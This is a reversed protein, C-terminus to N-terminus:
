LGGAFRSFGAGVQDCLWGTEQPVPENDPGGLLPLDKRLPHLSAYSDDEFYILAAKFAFVVPSEAKFAVTRKDKNIVEVRASGSTGQVVEPINLNGDVMDDTTTELSLSKSKLVATIVYLNDHELLREINPAGARLSAAALFQDLEQLDIADKTVDGLKLKFRAAQKIRGSVGAKDGGLWQSVVRLGLRNDLASTETVSIPAVQTGNKVAPLPKDGADFASALDGYLSLSRGDRALIQLPRIGADPLAVLSYGRALLEKAFRDRCFGFM